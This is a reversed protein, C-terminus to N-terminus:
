VIIPNWYNLTWQLRLQLFKFAQMLKIQILILEQWIIIRSRNHKLIKLMIKFTKRWSIISTTRWNITLKLISSSKLKTSTKRPRFIIKFKSNMNRASKAMLVNKVNAWETSWIMSELMSILLIPTWRISLFANSTLLKTLLM